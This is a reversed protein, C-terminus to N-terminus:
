VLPCFIDMPWHLDINSEFIIHKSSASCFHSLRDEIIKAMFLIEWSFFAMYGSIVNIQEQDAQLHLAKEDQMVMANANNERGRKACTWERQFSELSTAM